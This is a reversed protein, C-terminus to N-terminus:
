HLLGIKLSFFFKSFFIIAPALSQFQFFVFTLKLANRTPFIGYCPFCLQFALNNKITFFFKWGWFRGGESPPRRRGWRGRFAWSLILFFHWPNIGNKGYISFIANTKKHLKKQTLRSKYTITYLLVIIASSDQLFVNLLLALFVSM